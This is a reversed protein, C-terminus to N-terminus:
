IDFDEPKPKDVMNICEAFGYRARYNKKSEKDINVIKRFFINILRNHSLM